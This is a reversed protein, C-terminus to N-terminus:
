VSAGFILRDRVPIVHFGPDQDDPGLGIRIGFVYGALDARGDLLNQWATMQEHELHAGLFWPSRLAAGWRDIADRRAAEALARSVEIRAVPIGASRYQELWASLEPMKMM